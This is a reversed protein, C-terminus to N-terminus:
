TLKQTEDEQKGLHVIDDMESTDCLDRSFHLFAGSYCPNQLCSVTKTIVQIQPPNFERGKQMCDCLFVFTRKWCKFTDSPAHPEATFFQVSAARSSSGPHWPNKKRRQLSSAFGCPTVLVRFAKGRGSLFFFGRSDMTHSVVFYVGLFTYIHIHSM